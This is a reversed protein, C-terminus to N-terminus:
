YHLFSLSLSIIDSIMPIAIVIIALRQALRIRSALATEGADTCIHSAFEAIFSIGCARLMASTYEKETGTMESLKKLMQAGTKIDRKVMLQFM